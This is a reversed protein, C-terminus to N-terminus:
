WWLVSSMARLNSASLLSWGEPEHFVGSPHYNKGGSYADCWSQPVNACNVSLEGDIESSSSIQRQIDSQCITEAWTRFQDCSSSGSGSITVWDAAMAPTILALLTVSKAMKQKSTLPRLPSNKIITVRSLDVTFSCAEKYYKLIHEM